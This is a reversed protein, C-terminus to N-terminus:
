DVRAGELLIKTKVIEIIDCLFLAFNCLILRYTRETLKDLTKPYLHLSAIKHGIQFIKSRYENIKTM